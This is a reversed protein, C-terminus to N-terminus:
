QKVEAKKIVNAIRKQEDKPLESRMMRTFTSESIGLLEAVQYGYLRKKFQADRIIRNKEEKM